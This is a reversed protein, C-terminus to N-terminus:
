NSIYNESLLRKVISEFDGNALKDNLMVLKGQKDLLLLQPVGFFSYKRWIQQGLSDKNSTRGILLIPWDAEIKDEVAKVNPLDGDNALCASIVEFGHDKYKDYMLKLVPMRAICSSCWTAWFDILVVKGRMKDLDIMEGKISKHRLLLPSEMLTLFNSKNIAWAQMVPVSNISLTNLFAKVDSLTLGLKEYQELFDYSMYSFADVQKITPKDVKEDKLYNGTQIFLSKVKNLDVKEGRWYQKNLSLNLFSKLENILLALEPSNFAENFGVFRNTTCYSLYEGKLQPYIREWESLSNKDMRFDYGDRSLIKKYPLDFEKLDLYYLQRGYYLTKSLWWYRQPDNPFKRWLKLGDNRYKLLAVQQSVFGDKRSISRDSNILNLDLESNLKDWSINTAGNIKQEIQAISLM